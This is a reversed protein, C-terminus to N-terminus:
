HIELAIFIIDKVFRLCKGEQIKFLYKRFQKYKEVICSTSDTSGDDIV